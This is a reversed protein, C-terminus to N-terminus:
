LDVLVTWGCHRTSYYVGSASARKWAAAFLSTARCNRTSSSWALSLRPALRGPWYNRISCEERSSTMINPVVAMRIVINGQVFMIIRVVVHFANSKTQQRQLKLLERPMM